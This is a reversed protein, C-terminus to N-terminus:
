KKGNKVFKWGFFLSLLLLFLALPIAILLVTNNAEERFFKVSVMDSSSKGSYHLTINTEYETEEFQSTDFFGTLNASEWAELSDPSTKFSSIVYSDNMLAIEAYINEIESNWQSEVTTFFQEVDGISINRTYDTLNVYLHGLNFVESDNAVKEEYNVVAIANYEGPGYDETEWSKQLTVDEKTALDREYFSLSDVKKSNSFIDIRSSFSVDEKGKNDINLKFDVPEGANVNSTELDIELYKGPYPVFVEIVGQVKIQTGVMGMVEKEKESYIEEAGILLRHPGPTKLNSPLNLTAQFNGSGELREKDFSVYEALDGKAYIGITQEGKDSRVRFDFTEKLNPEFDVDIKAPSLGLSAMTLSSFFISVLLISLFIERKKM